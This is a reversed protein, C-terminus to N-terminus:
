GDGKVVVFKCERWSLCRDLPADDVEVIEAAENSSILSIVVCVEFEIKLFQVFWQKVRRHWMM